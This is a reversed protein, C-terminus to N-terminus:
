TSISGPDTDEPPFCGPRHVRNDFEGPGVVVLGGLGDRADDSILVVLINTRAIGEWGAVLAHGDRDEIIQDRARVSGMGHSQYHVLMVTIVHDLVSDNARPRLAPKRVSLAGVCGGCRLSSTIFISCCNWSSISAPWSYM